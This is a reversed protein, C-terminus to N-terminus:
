RASARTASLRLHLHRKFWHGVDPGFEPALNTLGSGAINTGWNVLAVDTTRSVPPYYANSLAASMACGGVNAWSFTPNGSDTRTIVSRSLAWWIRPWFSYSPGRRVYRTDEHLASALVFDAFFNESTDDAMTAGVRKAFAWRHFFHRGYLPASRTLQSVTANLGSAVFSLPSVSETVFFDWKESISPAELPLANSSSVSGVPVLSNQAYACSILCVIWCYRM